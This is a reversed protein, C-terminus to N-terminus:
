ASVGRLHELARAPVGLDRWLEPHCTFLLVQHRQAVDFLVRKMQALRGADSHVLADDLILLTPRGAARLLDAYAFRVILGLQERAGFSLAEFEGSDGVPLGPRQLATPMLQESLALTAQPFLLHLYHQLHQQLPAQLHALTERRQAALRQCLWDLAAARRNLEAHRRQTRQLEGALTARTEELGQAGAQQLASDLAAIRIERQQQAQALQQLSRGLRDIDQAVTDPRAERLAQDTQAVRTRLEAMEASLQQRQVGAEHLRQQRAPDHLAVEAAALERAAADLASRALTHQQMAQALAAQQQRDLAQATQVAQEAEALTPATPATPPMPAGDDAPPLAPLAALRAEAQALAAETQALALRLADVGKPARLKLAQEALRLETQVAQHQALRSEAAALDPLGLMDLQQQLAQQAAAHARAHDSLAEGGPQIHFTGVGPVRLWTPALLWREGSGDLRDVTQGEAGLQEVSQGPELTFGLRTAAADRQLRADDRSRALHRLQAVQDATIACGAAQQQLAILRQRAAEAEALQEGQLAAQRAATDRQTRAESHRARLQAQRGRAEAEAWQLRAADARQRAPQLAAEAREVQQAAEQQAARRRLVAGEQQVADSQQQDLLRQQGDLGQLRARDERLGREITALRERDAEAQQLQHRLTDEPRDRVDQQQAARETALQDVQQRYTQIQNDLEALRVTQADSLEKAALLDGRPRGTGTLLVDRERSFRALLADGDTAALSAAGQEAERGHILGQLADHLHERAHEAPGHLNQGTGQEIWLLGPIGWHEAKSAGKGAFAFGFIDALRDEAEVGELRQAGLQLSCRKNKLFTKVLRAPAGDLVFELEVTPAAAPENWPRLDDVTSSRHREFFAARIARVLTSKGAENPGTFLNLGPQLDPLEFPQRFQRFQEVRLRTLHLPSTPHVTM